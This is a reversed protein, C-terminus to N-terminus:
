LEQLGLVYAEREDRCLMRKETGEQELDKLALAGV